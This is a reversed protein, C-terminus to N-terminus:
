FSRRVQQELLNKINPNQKWPGTLSWVKASQNKSLFNELDCLNFFNHEQAILESMCVQDLGYMNARQLKEMNENILEFPIHQVKENYLNVINRLFNKRKETVYLFNAGTQKWLTDYHPYYLVGLEISNDFNIRQNFIVDADVIYAKSILNKEFLLNSIFYRSCFYYSKLKYFNINTIELQETSISLDISLKLNKIQELLLESPNILHIHVDHGHNDCSFLNYIGYNIFYNEDCQFVVKEKTKPKSIFKIDQFFM